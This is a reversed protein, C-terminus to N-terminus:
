VGSLRVQLYKAIGEPKEPLEISFEKIYSIWFEVNM